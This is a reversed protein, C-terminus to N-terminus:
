NGANLAEVKLRDHRKVVGVADRLSIEGKRVRELLNRAGANFLYNLHDWDKDSQVRGILEFKEERNYFDLEPRQFFKLMKGEDILPDLM